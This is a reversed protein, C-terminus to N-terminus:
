AIYALAQFPTLSIDELGRIVSRTEGVLRIEGCRRHKACTCTLLVSGGLMLLPKNNDEVVSSWPAGSLSGPLTPRRPKRLRSLPIPATTLAPRTETGTMRAIKEGAEAFGILCLQTCTASSVASRSM